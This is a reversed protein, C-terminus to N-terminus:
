RLYTGVPPVEVFGHETLVIFGDGSRVTIEDGTTKVVKGHELNRFDEPLTDMRTGWVKVERDGCVVHAGVYPHTLARVLLDIQRSSMRFDIQGDGKDRKRWSNARSHDQEEGPDKAVLKEVLDPIMRRASDEMKAYLTSADDSDDISFRAQCLIPGDDAGVGLRFFTLGTEKLGLVRAWILPHRGRNQPLLAPHSGVCPIAALIKASILQSWGFVLCVDPNSSKIGAVVEPDNINEVRYIPIGHRDCLPGLDVYDAHFGAQEPSLTLVGVVDVGSELLEVLCTETFRICGVLVARLDCRGM